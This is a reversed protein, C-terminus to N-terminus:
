YYTGYSRVGLEVLGIYMGWYNGNWDPLQGIYRIIPYKSARIVRNGARDLEWAIAYAIVVGVGNGVEVKLKRVDNTPHPIFTLSPPGDPQGGVLFPNIWVDLFWTPPLDSGMVVEGCGASPYERLDYKQALAWAPLIAVVFLIILVKKM